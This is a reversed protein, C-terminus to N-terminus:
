IVLIQDYIPDVYQSHVRLKGNAAWGSGEADKLSGVRVGNCGKAISPQSRDEFEFFCVNSLVEM